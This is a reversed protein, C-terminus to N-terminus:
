KKAQRAKFRAFGSLTAWEDPNYQLPLPEDEINSTLTEGLIRYLAGFNKEVPSLRKLRKIESSLDYHSRYQTELYQCLLDCEEIAEEPEMSGIVRATLIRCRQQHNREAQASREKEKDKLIEKARESAYGLRSVIEAAKELIKIESKSLYPTQLAIDLGSATRRYETQIKQERKSAQFFPAMQAINGAIEVASFSVKDDIAISGWCVGFPINKECSWFRNGKTGSIVM